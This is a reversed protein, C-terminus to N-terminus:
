KKRGCNCLASRCNSESQNVLDQFTTGDYVAELAERAKDWLPRFVCDEYFSCDDDIRTTCEVPGLSGQVFRIVEGVTISDANRLLYYGGDKGRASDVLGASKLSNLINELFRVPIGQAEAITGIKCPGENHHYALEYIARLAYQCKQTIAM